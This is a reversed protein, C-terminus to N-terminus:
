PYSTTDLHWVLYMSNNIEETEDHKLKFLQTETFKEVNHDMKRDLAQAQLWLQAISM